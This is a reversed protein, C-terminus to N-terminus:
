FSLRAIAALIEAEIAADAVAKAEPLVQYGLKDVYSAYDKDAVIEGDCFDPGAVTSGGTTNRELGISPRRTTYGHETRAHEAGAKAGDSVAAALDRAMQAKVREIEAHLGDVGDLHMSLM